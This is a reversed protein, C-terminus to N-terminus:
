RRHEFEPTCDHPGGYGWLCSRNLFHFPDLETAADCATDPATDYAARLGRLDDPWTMSPLHIGIVQDNTSLDATGGPGAVADPWKRGAAGRLQSIM